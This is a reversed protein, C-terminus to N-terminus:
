QAIRIALRPSTGCAPPMRRGRKTRAEDKPMMVTTAHLLPVLVPPPVDPVVDPLAATDAASQLGRQLEFAVCHPAVDACAVEEHLPIQADDVVCCSDQRSAFDQASRMLMSRLVSQGFPSPPLVLPPVLPVLPPVLPVLPVLPPVLLAFSPSAHVQASADAEDVPRHEPVDAGQSLLREHM